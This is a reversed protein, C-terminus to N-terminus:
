FILKPVVDNDQKRTLPTMCYNLLQILQCLVFGFRGYSLSPFSRTKFSLRAVKFFLHDPKTKPPSCFNLSRDTPLIMKSVTAKAHFVALAVM